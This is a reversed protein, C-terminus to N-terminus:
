SLLRRLPGRRSVRVRVSEIPVVSGDELVARAMLESVGKGEPKVKLRFGCSRAGNADPFKEAIDPRKLGVDARGVVESGSVLEVAKARSERGLAWGQIILSGEDANPLARIRGGILKDNGREAALVSLVEVSPKGAV